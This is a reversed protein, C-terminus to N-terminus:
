SQEHDTVPRGRSENPKDIADCYFMCYNSIDAMELMANVDDGIYDSAIMEAMEVFLGDILEDTTERTWEGRGIKDNDRLKQEMRRAHRMVSERPIIKDPM